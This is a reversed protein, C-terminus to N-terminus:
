TPGTTHSSPPRLARRGLKALNRKILRRQADSASTPAHRATSSGSYRPRCHLSQRPRAQLPSERDDVRVDAQHRRSRQRQRPDAPHQWRNAASPSAASRPAHLRGLQRLRRQDPGARPDRAPPARRPDSGPFRYFISPVIGWELLDRELRLNDDRVEDATYRNMFPREKPHVWSHLGWTVGVGPERSLEILREMELPHQALWRGTMFLTIPAEGLKALRPVFRFFDREYPRLSWCMDVTLAVAHPLEQRCGHNIAASRTALTDLREFIQDLHTDHLVSERSARQLADITVAYTELTEDNRTVLAHPVGDIRVERRVLLATTAPLREAPTTEHLNRRVSLPSTLVLPRRVARLEEVRTQLHPVDLRESELPLRRDEYVLSASSSGKSELGYGFVSACEEVPVYHVGDLVLVPSRLPVPAQSARGVTSGGDEFRVRRDATRVEITRAFDVLESRGDLFDPHLLAPLSVYVVGRHEVSSAGSAPCGAACLFAAVIWMFFRMPWVPRPM